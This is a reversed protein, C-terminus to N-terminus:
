SKDDVEVKTRYFKKSVVNCNNKIEDLSSYNTSFEKNIKYIFYDKEVYEDFIKAKSNNDICNYLIKEEIDKLNKNTDWKGVKYIIVNNSDKIDYHEILYDDCKLTVYRDNDDEEVLSEKTDCYNSSFPSKISTLLGEDIVEALYVIKDNSFSSFNSIVVDNFSIANYKFARFNNVIKKDVISYLLYSGVVLLCLMVIIVERKKNQRM